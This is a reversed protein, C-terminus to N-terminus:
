VSNDVLMDNLYVEIIQHRELLDKGVETFFFSIFEYDFEEPIIWEIEVCGEKLSYIQMLCESLRSETEWIEERLYDLYALTHEDPNLNHKTKLKSRQKLPVKKNIFFQRGHKIFVSITIVKKFNEVRLAYDEMRSM